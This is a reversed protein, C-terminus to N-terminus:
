KRIKKMRSVPLRTCHSAYPLHERSVVNSVVPAAALALPPLMSPPFWTVTVYLHDYVAVRVVAMVVFSGGRDVLSTVAFWTPSGFNYYFSVLLELSLHRKTISPSSSKLFFVWIKCITRVWEGPSPSCCSYLQCTSRVILSTNSVWLHLLFLGSTVRELNEHEKFNHLCIHCVTMAYLIPM